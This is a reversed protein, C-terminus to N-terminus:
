KGELLDVIRWRRGKLLVAKTIYHFCALTDGSERVQVIIDQSLSITDPRHKSIFFRYFKVCCADTAGVYEHGRGCFEKELALPIPTPLGIYNIKVDQVSFWLRQNRSTDVEYLNIAYLFPTVMEGKAGVAPIADYRWFGFEVSWSDKKIEKIAGYNWQIYTCGAIGIVIGPLLFLIFTRLLLQRISNYRRKKCQEETFM